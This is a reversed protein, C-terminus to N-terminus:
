ILKYVSNETKLQRYIKIDVGKKQTPSLNYDGKQVGAMNNVSKKFHIFINERQIWYNFHGLEKLNYL